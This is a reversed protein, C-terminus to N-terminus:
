LLIWERKDWEMGVGFSTAWRGTRKKAIAVAFEPASTGIAVITLGIVLESMGFKRAIRAAADVIWTGGVWLGAICAVIILAEIWMTKKTNSARSILQHPLVSM